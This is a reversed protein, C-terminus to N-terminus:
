EWGDVESPLALTDREYMKFFTMYGPVPNGAVTFHKFVYMHLTPNPLWVFDSDHEEEADTVKRRSIHSDTKVFNEGGFKQDHIEKM